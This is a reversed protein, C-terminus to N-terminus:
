ATLAYTMITLAIKLEVGKSTVAHLKRGFRQSIISFTTEIKKRYQQCLFADHPEHQRKSNHKRAAVLTTGCEKLVDENDYDTYAADAMISAGEPLELALRKLGSIDAVSAPTLVFDVPMGSENILAHVKLGYYYRRKSACYGRYEKGNYMRCRIIRINDCVPMPMSDVTYIQESSCQIALQSILRQFAFWVKDPIAHLRRNFRSKSISMPILGLLHLIARSREQNNQFLWSAVMATTMVEATNM